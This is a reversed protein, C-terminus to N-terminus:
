ETKDKVPIHLTTIFRKKNEMRVPVYGIIFAEGAPELGAASLQELYFEAPQPQPHMADDHRFSFCACRTCDIKKVPPELPFYAGYRADIILGIVHDRMGKGSLLGPCPTYNRTYLALDMWANLLQQEKEGSLLLEHNKRYDLCYFPGTERLVFGNEPLSRAEGSGEKLQKLLSLIETHRLLAREHDAIQSDIVSDFEEPPLAAVLDRVQGYSFGLLSLRRTASVRNVADADFYRYNNETNVTCSLMGDDAYSRITQSSLGSQKSITNVTYRM